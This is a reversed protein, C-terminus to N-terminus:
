IGVRPDVANLTGDGDRDIVSRLAEAQEPQPPYCTLTVPTGLPGRTLLASFPVVRGQESLMVSAGGSTANPETMLYGQGAKIAGIDCHGAAAAAIMGRTTADITGDILTSQQGVMPKLNTDFAMMLDELESRETQGSPYCVGDAEGLELTSGLQFCLPFASQPLSPCLLGAAVARVIVGASLSSVARGGAVDALAERLVAEWRADSVLASAQGLVTAVIRGAAAQNGGLADAADAVLGEVGQIQGIFAPQESALFALCAPPDVPLFSSPADPSGGDSSSITGAPRGVFTLAGLFRHVEGLSGDHLFSFGRVQDGMFANAAAEFGGSKRGFISENLIAQPVLHPGGFLGAKTYLNRLHPVKFVQSLTEFSYEGASGFFGPRFVDFEDNGNPDLRHCGACTNFGDTNRLTCDDSDIRDDCGHLVDTEQGPEARADLLVSRALNIDGPLRSLGTAITDRDGLEAVLRTPLGSLDIAALLTSLVDVPTSAGENIQQEAALIAEILAILGDQASPSSGELWIELIDLDAGDFVQAVATQSTTSGVRALAALPQVQRDGVLAALAQVATLRDLLQAEVDSGGEVEPPVLDLSAVDIAAFAQAFAHLGRTRGLADVFINAACGCTHTAVDVNVEAGEQDTCLRQEFQEDTMSECGFFLSRARTQPETLTNDLQRVPNPPLTLQLAFNTFQQFAAADVLQDNGNLSVVAADFEGFSNNEDLSGFNPQAGMADQFRRTRDGRWHQAGHNAMGRLTQTSMPGKIARFDPTLVGFVPDTGEPNARVFASMGEFVTVSYPGPNEVTVTDPDSLDWALGDFNGFIHCSACAQDGAASTASADYLLHRGSSITEPEPSHLVHRAVISPEDGAISVVVLENTFRALVYLLGLDHDLTLGVPGSVLPQGEADETALSLQGVIDNFTGAGEVPATRELEETSVWALKDSGLVTFFLQQDEEVAGDNGRRATVAIGTPFALSRGNLVEDRTCCSSHDIHDNLDRAVVEAGEILSIRSRVLDGRVTTSGFIGEGEFRTLNQSDLNSVYLAGTRPHAVMNFLITGVGAVADGRDLTAHGAADLQIEFVDEDPLDMMVFRSWDLPPSIRKESDGDTAPTNRAAIEAPDADLWCTDVGPGCTAEGEFKQVILGVTPQLAGDFSSCTCAANTQSEGEVQHHIALLGHNEDTEVCLQNHFGFARQAPRPDSMCRGMGVVARTGGAVREGPRAVTLRGDSEEVVAGSAILGLLSDRGVNAVITRGIITTRNGTHFGAAFVTSHHGAADAPGLALARPAESFMNLIQPPDDPRAPDYVLVDGLGEPRGVAAKENAAQVLDSGSATIPDPHNQGRHAVTIFVRPGAPTRAVVIDRPEDGVHITRVVQGVCRRSNLQIVSVSDSLHNVVWLEMSDTLVPVVGPQEDIVAMAVPRMGVKISACHRLRDGAPKFLEIYDDPVNAVAVFGSSGLVAVPRVPDAEFLTYDDAPAVTDTSLGDLRLSAARAQSEIVEGEQGCAILSLLVVLGAIARQGIFETHM